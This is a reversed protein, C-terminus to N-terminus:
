AQIQGGIGGEREVLARESLEEWPRPPPSYARERMRKDLYPICSKAAPGIMGCATFAQAREQRPAAGPTAPVAHLSPKV